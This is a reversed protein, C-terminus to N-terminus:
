LRNKNEYDLIKIEAMLRDIEDNDTGIYYGRIHGQRDILILKREISNTKSKPVKTNFRFDINLVSDRNMESVVGIKWANGGLNGPFRDGLFPVTEAITLLRVDPISNRLAYIRELQSFVIRCSDKCDRPLYSVVTLGGKLYEKPFVKNDISKIRTPMVEYYITDGHAVIARGALDKVPHFYPVDYHNTTFVQLFLFFLAPVVLTIILLGAKLVKTM